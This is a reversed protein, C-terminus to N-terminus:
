YGGIPVDLPAVINRACTPWVMSGGATPLSHGCRLTDRVGRELLIYAYAMGVFEGEDNAGPYHSRAAWFGTGQFIAPKINIALAMIEPGLLYRNSSRSEKLDSPRAGGYSKPQSNVNLMYYPEIPTSQPNAFLEFDDDIHVSQHRVAILKIYSVVQDMSMGYLPVVPVFAISDPETHCRMATAIAYSTLQELKAVSPALWPLQSLRELQENALQEYQQWRELLTLAAVKRTM